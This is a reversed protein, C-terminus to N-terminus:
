SPVQFFKLTRDLSTSALHRAHAGFKVDTVPASHATLVALPQGVMQQQQQQQKGSVSFVRVDAGAVAVYKGSYDFACAAPSYGEGLSM